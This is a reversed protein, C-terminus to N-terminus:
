KKEVVSHNRRKVKHHRFGFDQDSHMHRHSLIEKSNDKHAAPECDRRRSKQNRLAGVSVLCLLVRLSVVCCKWM